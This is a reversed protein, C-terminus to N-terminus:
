LDLKALALGRLPGLCGRSKEGRKDDDYYYYYLSLFFTDRAGKPNTVLYGGELLCTMDCEGDEIAGV